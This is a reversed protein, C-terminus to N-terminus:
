AAWRIKMAALFRARSMGAGQHAFYLGRKRCYHGRQVIESGKSVIVADVMRPGLAFAAGKRVTIKTDTQIQQSM